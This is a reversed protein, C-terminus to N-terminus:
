VSGTAQPFQGETPNPGRTVPFVLEADPWRSRQQQVLEGVKTHIPVSRFAYEYTARSLKIGKTNHKHWILQDLDFHEFKAHVLENPRAMTLFLIGMFHCLEAMQANQQALRGNELSAIRKEKGTLNQTPRTAEFVPAFIHATIAKIAKPSYDRRKRLVKQPRIPDCPNRMDVIQMRIAWNFMAKIQRHAANSTSPSDFQALFRHIEAPKIADVARDRFMTGFDQESRKMNLGRRNPKKGEPRLWAGGFRWFQARYKESLKSIHDDWYQTVVDGVTLQHKARYDLKEADPDDGGELQQERQQVLLRASGVNMVSASGLAVRRRKGNFRYAHVYTKVGMATVRLGLGKQAGQRVRGDLSKPFDWYIEQDKGNPCKAATTFADDLYLKPM